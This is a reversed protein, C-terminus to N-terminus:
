RRSQTTERGTKIEPFRLEKKKKMCNIEMGWKKAEVSLDTTRTGTFHVAVQSSRPSVVPHVSFAYTVTQKCITGVNPLSFSVTFKEAM